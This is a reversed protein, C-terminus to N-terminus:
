GNKSRKAERRAITKTRLTQGQVVSADTSYATQRSVKCYSSWVTAHRMGRLRSDLKQQVWVLSRSSRYFKAALFCFYESGPLRYKHAACSQLLRLKAAGAVTSRGILWGDVHGALGCRRWASRALDREIHGVLIVDLIHHTLTCIANYPSYLSCSSVKTM